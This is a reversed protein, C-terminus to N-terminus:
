DPIDDPLDRLTQRREDAFEERLTDTLRTRLAASNLHERVIQLVTRAVISARDSDSGM